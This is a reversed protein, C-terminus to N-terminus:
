RKRKEIIASFIKKLQDAENALEKITDDFKKNFTNNLLDLWLV